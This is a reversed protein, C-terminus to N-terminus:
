SVDLRQLAGEVRRVVDPRPILGAEGTIFCLETPQDHFANVTEVLLQISPAFTDDTQADLLATGLQRITDVSTASKRGRRLDDWFATVAAM